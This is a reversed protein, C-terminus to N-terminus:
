DYRFWSPPSPPVRVLDVDFLEVFQENQLRAKNGAFRRYEEVISTLAWGQAKRLCGFVVGTRHMGLHDVVLIPHKTVDLILALTELVTEESIPAWPTTEKQAGLHIFNIGEDRLFDRFVTDTADPSLYVVSRLKLQELFAFNPVTPQGSRHVSEEVLGYLPPPVLGRQRISFQM